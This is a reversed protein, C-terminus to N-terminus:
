GVVMCGAASRCMFPPVVDLVAPSQRMACVDDGFCPTCSPASDVMTPRRPVMGVLEMALGEVDAAALLRLVLKYILEVIASRAQDHSGRPGIDYM